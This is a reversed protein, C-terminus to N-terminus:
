KNKWYWKYYDHNVREVEPPLIMFDGYLQELYQQYNKIVSYKRNEFDKETYTEFIEFDFKEKEPFYPSYLCARFKTIQKNYKQSYEVLEIVKNQMPGNIRNKIYKPFFLISKILSKFFNTSGKYTNFNSLLALKSKKKVLSSFTKADEVNDPINDIPFIDIFVGMSKPDGTFSKQYSNAFCLKAYPYRYGNTEHDLVFFEPNEKGKMISILKKYDDRRLMIDIDDDWPIFGKHRIAGLLSGGGLSYSLNNEKCIENLFDMMKLLTNKIEEESMMFIRGKMIAVFSIYFVTQAKIIGDLKRIRMVLILITLEINEENLKDHFWRSIM